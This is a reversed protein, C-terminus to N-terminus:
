RVEGASVSLIPPLYLDLAKWSDGADRSGYLQGTNTGVYVGTPDGHDTALGERLVGMFARPGPLGKSSRRWTKGANTTKWVALQGRPPVRNVDATLPVTYATREKNSDAAIAFGFSSPLGATVETWAGGGAGRYYTGCHNQHFLSGDGASDWALHHVCQGMEPYRNPLFEARVNGNEPSWTKGADRSEFTGVASIGVVLHRPDRPDVLVSHACLGGFGPQWDKRTPHYNLSPFDNWSDGRDSSRFLAAPEVGVYVVDPEDALGPEVHWLRTVALGSDARFKPAAKTPKLTEGVTGRYLAPGYQESPSPAAAYVTRGDRPDLVMHYVSTGEMFPGVATWHRRDSSHFLFGGKRTGVLVVTSGKKIRAM